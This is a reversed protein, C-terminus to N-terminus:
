DPVPVPLKLSRPPPAEAIATAERGRMADGIALVAAVLAAVNLLGVSVLLGSFVARM